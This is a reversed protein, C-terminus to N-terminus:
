ENKKSPNIQLSYRELEVLQNMEEKREEEVGDIETLTNSNSLTSPKQATQAYALPSPLSSYL